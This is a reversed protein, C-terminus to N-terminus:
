LEDDGGSKLSLGDGAKATDTVPDNLSTLSEGRLPNYTSARLRVTDLSDRLRSTDIRIRPGGHYAFHRSPAPGTFLDAYEVEYSNRPTPTVFSITPPTENERNLSPLPAPYTPIPPITTRTLTNAVPSPSRLSLDLVDLSPTLPPHTAIYQNRRQTNQLEIEDLDRRSPVNCLGRRFLVTGALALFMLMIAGAILTYILADQQSVTQQEM